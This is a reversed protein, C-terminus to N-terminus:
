RQIIPVDDQASRMSLIIAWLAGSRSLIRQRVDAGLRDVVDTGVVGVIRYKSYMPEATPVGM